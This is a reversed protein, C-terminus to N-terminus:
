CESRDSIKSHSATVLPMTHRDTWDIHSECKRHVAQNNRAIGEDPDTVLVPCLHDPVLVAVEDRRGPSVSRLDHQVSCFDSAGLVLYGHNELGVDGRSVMAFLEDGNLRSRLKLAIELRAEIYRKGLDSSDLTLRDDCRKLLHALENLADNQREFSSKVWLPNPAGAERDGIM